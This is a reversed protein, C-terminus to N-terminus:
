FRMNLTLFITRGWGAVTPGDVSSPNSTDVSLGADTLNFVGTTLRAGELGLPDAWDLVLDHGTWSEFEGTGARNEYSSRYSATWVASVSGRRALVGIRVVNDPIALRDEEGAITMETDAVRRWGGRMGVVGWDTRFGGGLRVNAGSIENDVVNAYGDHITIDGGTREICNSRDDGVCEHLNQMAWDASNQGPMGSRALRYLEVDLFYPGRRAEAGLAIRETDSPDLDPNGSSVRTVQRPNLDTCTRPPNGGGPDCEVYPHTQAESSHLYLLGPARDGASWSGRLTIVDSARYEAGLLWSKAAGVDDYDDGRGAIRIDLTEALPLSTEAFGSAVTREGAYSVGGSGLVESVDYAAGDNSRYVTVDRVETSSLEIGATWAADRGGFAFGSGELALRGGLSDYETDNEERLSSNEIAQLHEPANSFPNALDYNGTQIESAIRGEHVFTDGELYGDLRYTDIRADYGLNESLRGEVSVAADYEWSDWQWDRNGHRVFRHAVVFQDNDDAEFESGAADNIAQLLGGNPAFPFSGVSPAYRFAWDSQAFLADVHLDASETLPHDLNLVASQQEYRVTNWMITGYAFGCGQDGSLIGPPNTLPGTYGQAPDCEGLAVTRQGTVADDEDRQIVWVTNGGASINQAESFEGGEQWVSRSYDRSQATIKRAGSFTRM